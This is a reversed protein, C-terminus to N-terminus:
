VNAVLRKLVWTLESATVFVAFPSHQKICAVEDPSGDLFVLLPRQYRPDTTLQEILACVVSVHDPDLCFVAAIPADELIREVADADDVGAVQTTWGTAAYDQALNACYAENAGVFFVTGAM